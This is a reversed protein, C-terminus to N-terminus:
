GAEWLNAWLSRLGFFCPWGRQTDVSSAKNWTSANGNKGIKSFFFTITQGFSGLLFRKTPKKKKATHCFEFCTILSLNNVDEQVSFILKYPM